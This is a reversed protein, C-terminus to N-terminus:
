AAVRKQTLQKCLIIIFDARDRPSTLECQFKLKNAGALQYRNPDKQVMTVLNLPDVKTNDMFQLSGSTEGVDVSSIGAQEAEIRVEATIFLTKVPEPLLGFRDIMEVQLDRLQQQTQAAGV